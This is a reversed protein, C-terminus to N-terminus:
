SKGYYSGVAVIYYDGHRRFGDEDTYTDPHKQLDYHPTTKNQYVKYDTYSKFTGVACAEARKQEEIKAILEEPMDLLAYDAKEIDHYVMPQITPTPQMASISLDSPPLSGGTKVSSMNMVAITTLVMSIIKLRIM